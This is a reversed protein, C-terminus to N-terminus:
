TVAQELMRAKLSDIVTGSIQYFFHGQRAGGGWDFFHPGTPKTNVSNPISCRIDTTEIM